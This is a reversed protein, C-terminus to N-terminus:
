LDDEDKKGRAIEMAIRRRLARLILEAFSGCVFGVALFGSEGLALRDAVAGGLFIASMIGVFLDTIWVRWNLTPALVLKVTAGAAGGLLLASTGPFAAILQAITDKGMNKGGWNNWM